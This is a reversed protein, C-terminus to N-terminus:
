LSQSNKYETSSVKLAAPSLHQNWGNCAALVCEQMTSPFFDKWNSCKPFLITFYFGMMRIERNTKIKQYWTHESTLWSYQQQPTLAARHRPASCVLTGPGGRNEPNIAISAPGLTCDPLSLLVTLVLLHDKKFLNLFFFTMIKKLIIWMTKWERM